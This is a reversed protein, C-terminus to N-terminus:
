FIQNDRLINNITQKASERLRRCQQADGDYAIAFVSERANLTESYILSRISSSEQFYLTGGHVRENKRVIVYAQGVMKGIEAHDNLCSSVGSSSRGGRPDYEGAKISQSVRYCHNTQCRIPAVARSQASVPSFCLLGNILISFIAVRIM